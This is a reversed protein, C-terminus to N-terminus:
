LSNSHVVYNVIQADAMVNLDIIDDCVIVMYVASFGSLVQFKNRTELCIASMYSFLSTYLVHNHEM